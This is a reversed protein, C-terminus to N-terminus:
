GDDNSLSGGAVSMFRVAFGCTGGGGGVRCGIGVGGSLDGGTFDVLPGVGFTGGAFMGGGGGFFALDEALPPVVDDAAGFCGGGVRSSSLTTSRVFSQAGGLVYVSASIRLSM